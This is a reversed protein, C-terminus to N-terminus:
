TRVGYARAALQRAVRIHYKHRHSTWQRHTAVTSFVIDLVCNKQEGKVISQRLRVLLREVPLSRRHSSWRHLWMRATHVSLRHVRAHQLSFKSSFRNSHIWKSAIFLEISVKHAYVRLQGIQPRRAPSISHTRLLTQRCIIDRTVPSHPLPALLPTCAMVSRRRIYLQQRCMRLRRRHQPPLSAPQLIQMCRALKQMHDYGVRWVRGTRLRGRNHPRMVLTHSMIRQCTTPAFRYLNAFNNESVIRRNVM